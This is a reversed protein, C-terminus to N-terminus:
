TVCLLHLTWGLVPWSPGSPSYLYLHVREKVEASSPTPPWRWAGAAKGGPFVQYGNYLLNPPGWPLDPRTRFIEGGEPNSGRVTWGTFYTLYIPNVKVGGGGMACCGRIPWPRRILSAERFSESAGRGTPSRQVLSWRSVCVESLVCCECSVSMWAWSPIRVWLGVLRAAASGCRLDRPWQSRCIPNMQNLIRDLTLNMCVCYRVKRNQLM